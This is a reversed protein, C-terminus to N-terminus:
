YPTSITLNYSSAFTQISTSGDSETHTKGQSLFLFGNVFLLLILIGALLVPRLTFQVQKRDNLKEMRAKLRTYFFADAETEALNSAMDLYSDALPTSKNIRM